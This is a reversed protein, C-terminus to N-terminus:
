RVFGGLAFLCPKPVSREWYLRDRFWWATKRLSMCGRWGRAARYYACHAASISGGDCSEWSDLEVAWEGVSVLGGVLRRSRSSLRV